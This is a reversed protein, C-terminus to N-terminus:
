TVAVAPPARPAIIEGPVASRISGARARIRALEQERWAELERLEVEPLECM